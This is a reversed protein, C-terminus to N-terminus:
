FAGVIGIIAPGLVILLVCPLFCLMVPGLIKIPVKQAKERGRAKREARLERSQEQLAASIPIGFRDVQGVANVFNRLADVKMREAMERLAENRDKGLQVEARVRLFEEPVPGRQLDSVKALAAPFALGASVCMTLLDIADPLTEEFKERRKAVKNYLVIDPIFFGFIIAIPLYGFSTLSQSRFLVILYSLGFVSVSSILKARILNEPNQWASGSVTAMEGLKRGYKGSFAKRAVVYSNPLFFAFSTFFVAPLVLSWMGQSILLFSIGAGLLAFYVKQRVLKVFTSESSGGVQNSLDNLRSRYANKILKDGFQLIQSDILAYQNKFDKVNKGLRLQSELTVIRQRYIRNINLKDIVLKSFLLLSVAALCALIFPVLNLNM